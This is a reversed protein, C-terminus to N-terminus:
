CATQLSTTSEKSKSTTSLVTQVVAELREMVEANTFRLVTWGQQTLQETKRRDRERVAISQHSTGDVEIAIMHDPNAIDILWHAHPCKSDTVPAALEPIWGSGLALLLSQQPMTLGRGNGGHIPPKHGLRKLTSSVKERIEPRKMPNRKLMRDSAHRRNTAAMTRSSAENRCRQSCTLRWRGASWAIPAGCIKCAKLDRLTVKRRASISQGLCQKSCTKRLRGKADLRAPGGCVVCTGSKSM